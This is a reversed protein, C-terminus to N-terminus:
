RNINRITISDPNVLIMKLDPDYKTEIKKRQVWNHVRQISVNMDDALKQQSIWKISDVKDM